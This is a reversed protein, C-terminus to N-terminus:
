REKEDRVQMGWQTLNVRSRGGRAMQRDDRERDDRCIEAECQEELEEDKLLVCVLEVDAEREKEKERERNVRSAVM